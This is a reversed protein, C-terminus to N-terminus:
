DDTDDDTPHFHRRHHPYGAVLDRARAEGLEREVAFREVLDRRRAARSGVLVHCRTVDAADPDLAQADYAVWREPNGPPHALVVPDGCTSCPRPEEPRFQRAGM